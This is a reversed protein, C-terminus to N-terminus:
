CFQYNCGNPRSTRWEHYDVVLWLEFNWGAIQVPLSMLRDLSCSCASWHRNEQPVDFSSSRFLNERSRCALEMAVIWLLLEYVSMAAVDLSRENGPWSPRRNNHPDIKSSLIWWKSDYQWSSLPGFCPILVSCSVPLQHIEYSLQYWDFVGLTYGLSQAIVSISFVFIFWISRLNMYCRRWQGSNEM